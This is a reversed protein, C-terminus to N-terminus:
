AEMFDCRFLRESIIKFNSFNHMFYLIWITRNDLKDLLDMNIYQKINRNNEIRSEKQKGFQRINRDNHQGKETALSRLLDHGHGAVDHLLAADLEGSPGRRQRGGDHNCPGRPWGPPRSVRSTTSSFIHQCRLGGGFLLSLNSFWFLFNRIDWLLHIPIM